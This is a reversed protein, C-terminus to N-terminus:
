GRAEEGPGVIPDKGRPEHRLQIEEATAPKRASHDDGEAAVPGLGLTLMADDLFQLALRDWEDQELVVARVKPRRIWDDIRVHAGIVPTTARNM